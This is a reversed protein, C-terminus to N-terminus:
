KSMMKTALPSCSIEKRTMNRGPKNNLGTGTISNKKSNGTRITSIISVM